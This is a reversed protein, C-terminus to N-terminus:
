RGFLLPPSTQHSQVSRLVAGAGQSAIEAALQMRGPDCPASNREVSGLQVESQDRGVTVIGGQIKESICSDLYILTISDHPGLRIVQGSQVYGFPEVGVSVGVVDEVLAAPPGAFARITSFLSIALILPASKM